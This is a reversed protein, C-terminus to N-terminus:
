SGVEFYDTGHTQYEEPWIVAADLGNQGEEFYQLVTVVPVPWQHWMYAPVDPPLEPNHSGYTFYYRGQSLEIDTLELAAVIAEADTYSGARQMADAMLWVSDYAEMAFSVLIDGFDELYRRDLEAALDNYQGPVTGVREFVCYNGDPVTNWYQVSQFALHNTVCITDASPAIGLEAMQQTLNYSTEGSVLLRIADLPEPRAMIRSLIPVFDETGLEIELQEVHVGARELHAGEAAGAPHGYDTNEIIIVVDAVGQAVLWDTVVKGVISSPPSIRFVYDVGQSRRSPKGEFEVYGAASIQDNRPHAYITPIQYRQVMGMTALGVASHYFGVIGRANDQLILRELATQGYESVGESDAVIIELRHNAGDIQIGCGANIDAIAQEFGWQMGIGGTVSGPSSLPVVGGLRVTEEAFDCHGDAYTAGAILAVLLCLVIRLGRSLMKTDRPLNKM